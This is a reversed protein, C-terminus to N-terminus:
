SGARTAAADMSHRESRPKGILQWLRAQRVREKADADQWPRINM